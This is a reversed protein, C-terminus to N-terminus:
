KWKNFPHVALSSNTYKFDMTVDKGIWPPLDFSQNENNLELEAIILGDNNNEYVDIIWDARQYKLFFRKKVIQNAASFENMMKEAHDVPIEYEFESRTFGTQKGKVTLWAKKGSNRVRVVCDNSKSIYSQTLSLKRIVYNKWQDNVVLFKKEIEKPM